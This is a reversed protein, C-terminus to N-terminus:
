RKIAREPGSTNDVHLFDGDIILLTAGEVSRSRHSSLDDSVIYSMGKKLTFKEGNEMESTLEGELCQVIHGKTCWHDALYAPSYEVLRIRIRPLQVTQWYATGTLGNYKVKEITTWNITQFPIATTM